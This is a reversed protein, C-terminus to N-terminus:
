HALPLWVTFRSGRGETSEVAIRGARGDLIRRVTALGIGTGPARTGQVRYFPEFIKERAEKPIGPGTDEVDIRCSSDESRVSLRVHREPQGELYKVANGCLNALIVHLLGSDCRLVVDPVEDVDLSAGLQAVLPALEEKVEGVVPRLAAAENPEASRTAKSFALLADVIATLRHTCRETREAIGLIAAPNESSRRLMAPAMVLPGMANKLDHAVRGAFADLDRNREELEHAHATIENEYSAIRRSGWAGVLALALLGAMRMGWRTGEARRQLDGAKVLARAAGVQNLQILDILNRNLEDYDGLMRSMRALAEQDLNRRSLELVVGIERQLRKLIAQADDWIAPENPLDLLPTYVQAAQQLDAEVDSLRSEVSAMKAANKELIHDDILIRQQDIDRAVRTVQEISAISTESLRRARGEAGRTLVSSVLGQAIFILAIIGLGIILRHQNRKPSRTEHNM